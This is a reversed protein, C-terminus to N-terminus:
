GHSSVTDLLTSTYSDTMLSTTRVVDADWLLSRKNRRPDHKGYHVSPTNHRETPSAQESSVASALCLQVHSFLNNCPQKNVASSWIEREDLVLRRDGRNSALEISSKMAVSRSFLLTNTYNRKLYARRDEHYFVLRRRHDNPIRPKFIISSPIWEASDFIHESRPSLLSAQKNQKRTLNWEHGICM